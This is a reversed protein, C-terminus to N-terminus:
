AKSAEETFDKVSKLRKRIREDVRELPIDVEVVMAVQEGRLTPVLVIDGVSVPLGCRYSYSKGEFKGTKENKFNVGVIRKNKM